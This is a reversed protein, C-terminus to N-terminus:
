RLEPPKDEFDAFIFLTIAACARSKAPPRKSSPNPPAVLPKRHRKKGQIIPNSLSAKCPYVELAAPPFLVPLNAIVPHQHLRHASRPGRQAGARPSPAQDPAAWRSAPV